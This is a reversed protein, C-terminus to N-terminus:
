YDRVKCVFWGFARLCVKAFSDPVEVDVAAWANDVMDHAENICSQFAGSSEILEVMGGIDRQERSIQYQGWLWQQKEKQGNLMTLARIVPATIKGEILDEAKTKLSKGFGQLNIVDDIVQFALGMALFYDGLAAEQAATAKGLVAGTRACIAAPLGSKLRHCCLLTKWMPEFDGSQLCDDMMHHMGNIDLAQGVHAGRLCTFYLEYVRLRQQDTLNPHDRTVGEGLFYSATGANIATAMGYTVHACPGGRRLLSNDQIDDIILSGTHLFEPFSTYRELKSAEGGVVSSALLLGMSRWGKGQRDTIARVPKVLQEVFVDTPLGDMMTEFEKSVVLQVMHERTPAYPFVHDVNRLVVDSVAQLMTRFNQNQSGFYQEVFGNGSIQQGHRTGTVAVQGEWYAPTSIVSILEQSDCVATLTLELGETPLSLSWSRGYQIFTELSTWTGTQVLEADVQSTSGGKSILVAKDVLTGKGLNDTTKAYTVESGDDLQVGTWAWAVDMAKIGGGGGARKSDGGFEHDYWGDGRVTYSSVSGPPTVVGEVDLRTISYYFMADDNSVGPSVGGIGNRVAPKTPVFRLSFGFGPDTNDAAGADVIVHYAGTTDDKTMRMRHCEFDMKDNRVKFRSPSVIDPRPLNNKKFVEVLAREFYDDHKPHRHDLVTEAAHPEGASYYM